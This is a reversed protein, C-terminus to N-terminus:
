LKQMSHNNLKQKNYFMKLVAVVLKHFDSIGTEITSTNQFYRSRNTLFLDRCSLNNPNKFCAPEKNLNKLNNVNSFANLCSDKLESNLDGLLLLSDYHKLNVDLGQNLHHLHSSINNKHPNYSCCLHQKKESPKYETLLRSPINERTYLM